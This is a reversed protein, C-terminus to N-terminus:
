TADAELGAIMKRYSGMQGTRYLEAMTGPTDTTERSQAMVVDPMYLTKMRPNFFRMIIKWRKLEKTKKFARRRQVHLSDFWNLDFYVAEGRRNTGEVRLETYIDMMLEGEDNIL